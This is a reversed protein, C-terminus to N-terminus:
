NADQSDEMDYDNQPIKRRARFGDLQFKKRHDKPRMASEPLWEMDVLTDIDAQRKLLIAIFELWANEELNHEEESILKCPVLRAFKGHLDLDSGKFVVRKSEHDIIFDKPRVIIIRNLGKIRKKFAWLGCWLYCPQVRGWSTTNSNFDLRHATYYSRNTYAISREIQKEARQFHDRPVELYNSKGRQTGILYIIILYVLFAAFIERMNFDIM